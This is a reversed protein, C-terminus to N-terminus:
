PGIRTVLHTTSWNCPGIETTGQVVWNVSFLGPTLLLMRGTSTVQGMETTAQATGITEVPTVDKFAHPTYEPDPDAAMFAAQITEGSFVGNWTITATVLKEETWLQRLMDGMPGCQIQIDFPKGDRWRGDEPVLATQPCHGSGGFRAHLAEATEDTLSQASAPSDWIGKTDASVAELGLVVALEDRDLPVAACTCGAGEVCNASYLGSAYVDVFPRGEDDPTFVPITEAHAPLAILALGLASRTLSHLM